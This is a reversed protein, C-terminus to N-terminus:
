TSYKPERLIFKRQHIVIAPSASLLRAHLNSDNGVSNCAYTAVLVPAFGASATSSFLGLRGKGLPLNSKDHLPAPAGSDASPRNLEETGGNSRGATVVIWRTDILTRRM